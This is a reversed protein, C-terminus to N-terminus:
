GTAETLWKILQSRMPVKGVSKVQGNIILAPTGMVGCRGIEKIDRVHEVDAIIGREAMVQILEQELRDCQACGPGLVKIVLGERAEDEFPKGLFKHFERCLAKEYDEKVREPIYNRKGLRNVLEEMVERDLRGGYEEALEELVAKLGIIGVPSNGIRIQAVDDQSM